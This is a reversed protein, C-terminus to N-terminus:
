ADVVAKAPAFQRSFTDVFITGAKMSYDNRAVCTYDFRGRNTDTGVDEVVMIGTTVKTDINYSTMVEIGSGNAM